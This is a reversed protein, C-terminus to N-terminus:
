EAFNIGFIINDFGFKRIDELKILSVDLNLKKHLLVRMGFSYSNNNVDTIFLVKWNLKSIGAFGKIKHDRTYKIGPHLAFHFFGPFYRSAVAYVERNMVGISLGFNYDEEPLINYKANFVIKKLSERNFDEVEDANFMLGAELGRILGANYKFKYRHIGMSYTGPPVAPTSPINFLGTPGDISTSNNLLRYWEAESEALAPSPSALFILMIIFLFIIKKM